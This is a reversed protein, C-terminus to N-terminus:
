RRLFGAIRARQEDVALLVPRTVLHGVTLAVFMTAIGAGALPRTVGDLIGSLLTVPQLAADWSNLRHIRGLYIALASVAHVALEIGWGRKVWGQRVAYDSFRRLADSYAALAAAWALGPRRSARFLVLSLIWPALALVLNWAMWRGSADLQWRVGEIILGAITPEGM